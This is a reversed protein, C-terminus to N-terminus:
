PSQRAGLLRVLAPLQDEVTNSSVNLQMGALAALEVVEAADIRLRSAWLSSPNLPRAFRRMM